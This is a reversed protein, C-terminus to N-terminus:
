KSKPGYTRNWRSGYSEILGKGAMERAAERMSFESVGPLQENLLNHIEKLSLEGEKKLIGAIVKQRDVMAVRGVKKKRTTKAKKATKKVKKASPKAKKTQQKKKVVRKAKRASRKKGKVKRKVKTAPAPSDVLAIQEDIAEIEAQLASLQKKVKKIQAAIEKKRGTLLGLLEKKKTRVQMTLTKRKAM